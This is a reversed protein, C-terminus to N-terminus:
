PCRQWSAPAVPVAAVPSSGVPQCVPAPACYAPQCVPACQQAPAYAAPAYQQQHGCWRDCWRCCGTNGLLVAVLATWLMKKGTM